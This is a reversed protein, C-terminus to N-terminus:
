AVTDVTLLIRHASGPEGRPAPVDREVPELRLMQMMLDMVNLKIYQCAGDKEALRQRVEIGQYPQFMFPEGVIDLPHDFMPRQHLSELVDTFLLMPSVSIVFGVGREGQRNEPLYINGLKEIKPSRMIIISPGTVIGDWVGHWVADLPHRTDEPWASFRELFLGRQVAAWGFGHIIEHIGAGSEIGYKDYEPKAVGDGHAM